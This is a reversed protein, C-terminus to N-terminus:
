DHPGCLRKRQLGSAGRPLTGVGEIGAHDVIDWGQQLLAVPQPILHVAHFSLEERAVHIGIPNLRVLEIVIGDVDPRQIKAAPDHSSRTQYSWAVSPQWGKVM